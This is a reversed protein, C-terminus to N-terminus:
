RLFRRAEVALADEVVLALLAVGVLGDDLRQDLGARQDRAPPQLMLIGVAPARLLGDDEAVRRLPEDRHVLRDARAGSYGPDAVGIRVSRSPLRPRPEAVGAVPRQALGRQLGDAFRAPHGRGALVADAAHDAGLGIPHHATLAGPAHRDRHEDPLALVLRQDVLADVLADGVGELLLAGVGPVGLAGRRAEERGIVIGGIVLLDVVDEVDPEIGARRVGVHQLIGIWKGPRAPMRRLISPPASSTIYRSPESWCRPQNWDESSSLQPVRPRAGNSTTSVCPKVSSSFPRFIDFDSPLWVKGCSTM